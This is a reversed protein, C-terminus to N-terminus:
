LLKLVLQLVATPLAVLALPGHSSSPAARMILRQLLRLVTPISGFLQLRPVPVSRVSSTTTITGSAMSLCGGM